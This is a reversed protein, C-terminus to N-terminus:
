HQKAPAMNQSNRLTELYKGFIRKLDDDPYRRRYERFAERAREFQGQRCWDLIRRQFERRRASALAIAAQSPTRQRAPVGEEGSMLATVAVNGGARVLTREIRTAPPRATTTAIVARKGPSTNVAGDEPAPTYMVFVALGIALGASAFVGAPVLWSSAAFPNLWSWRSRRVARRAEKLIAHDLSAPVDASDLQRYLRSLPSDGQLYEEFQRDEHQSGNM